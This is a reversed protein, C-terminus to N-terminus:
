KCIRDIAKSRLNKCNSVSYNLKKAVDKWSMAEVYRLYMVAREEADLEDFAAEIMQRETEIDALKSALNTKLDVLRSILDAMRDAASGSGRPGIGYVTTIRTLAEELADIRDYDCRYVIADKRLDDLRQKNVIM